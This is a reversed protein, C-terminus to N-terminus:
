NSTTRRLGRHWVQLIRQHSQFSINSTRQQPRWTVLNRAINDPISDLTKYCFVKGPTKNSFKFHQYMLIGDFKKFIKELWSVSDFTEVLVKGNHHGVLESVNNEGVFYTLFIWSKFKCLKLKNISHFWCGTM